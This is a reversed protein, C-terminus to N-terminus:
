IDCSWGDPAAECAIGAPALRAAAGAALADLADDSREPDHHILLLNSVEAATALDAAREPTSHGWGCRSGMQAETFQADHALYDAGRCFDALADFGITEEGVPHIENDPIFVLDRDAGRIRYGTAGGPHNVAIASLEFGERALFPVPDHSVRMWRCPLSDVRVPFHVGDLLEFPYWPHDNWPYGFVFVRRDKEYLPLFYPFGMVHDAHLHTLLLYVDRGDGRLHDGLRRIGTGADIVLVRDGAEVSICSTDGGYRVTEPGPVPFTGRTGWLTVKV